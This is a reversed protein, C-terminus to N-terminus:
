HTRGQAPRIITGRGLGTRDIRFPRGETKEARGIKSNVIESKRNVAEVM